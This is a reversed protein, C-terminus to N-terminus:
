VSEASAPKHRFSFRAAAALLGGPLPQGGTRRELRVCGLDDDIDHMGEFFFLEACLESLFVMGPCVIHGPCLVFSSMIETRAGRMRDVTTKEKHRVQEGSSFGESYTKQISSYRLTVKLAEVALLRPPAAQSRKM